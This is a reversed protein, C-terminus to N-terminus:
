DRERIFSSTSSSTRTHIRFCFTDSKKKFQLRHSENRFKNVSLLTHPLSFLSLHRKVERLGGVSIWFLSSPLRYLGTFDQRKIRWAEINFSSLLLQLGCRLNGTTRVGSISAPMSLQIGPKGPSGWLAANEAVQAQRPASRARAKIKASKIYRQFSELITMLARRHTSPFTNAKFCACLSLSHLYSAVTFQLYHLYSGEEEWELVRSTM